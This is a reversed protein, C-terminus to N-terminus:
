RLLQCVDQAIGSVSLISITNRQEDATFVIRGDLLFVRPLGASAALEASLPHSWFVGPGAAIVTTTTESFILRGPGSVNVDISKGTSLNTLTNSLPGAIIATDGFLILREGNPKGEQPTVGIDFGCVDQTPAVGGTFPLLLITPKQALVPRTALLLTAFISAGARRLSLKKSM